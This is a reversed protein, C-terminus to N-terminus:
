AIAPVEPETSDRPAYPRTFSWPAYKQMTLLFEHTITRICAYQPETMLEGDRQDDGHEFAPSMAIGGFMPVVRWGLLEGTRFSHYVKELSEDVHSGGDMDAVATIVDRRSMTVGGKGKVVPGAWWEPFALRQRFTLPGTSALYRVGQPSMHMVLLNCETLLNRPSLKPAATFFRGQRLGLQQLLSVSARGKGPKKPPAPQHLLVRLRAAMSKAHPRHGADFQEADSTLLFIQERFAERRDAPTRPVREEM